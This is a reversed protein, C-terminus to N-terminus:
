APMQRRNHPFIRKNFNEATEHETKKKARASSMVTFSVKLAEGRRPAAIPCNTRSKRVTHATLGFLAGLNKHSFEFHSFESFETFSWIFETLQFFRKLFFFVSIFKRSFFQFILSFSLSFHRHRVHNKKQYSFITCQPPSIPYWHANSFTM